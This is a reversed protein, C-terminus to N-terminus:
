SEFYIYYNGEHNPIEVRNINRLGKYWVDIQSFYSFNDYKLFQKQYSMFFDVNRLELLCRMIRQRIYIPMESLSWFAVTLIKKGKLGQMEIELQEVSSLFEINDLLISPDVNAVDYLYAKQLEVMPQIDYIYYKGIFGDNRITKYFSGYGGGIELIIDYSLCRKNAMKSLVMLHYANQVMTPSTKFDAEFKIPKGIEDERCVVEWRDEWDADNRLQKYWENTEFRNPLHITENVIDWRLIETCKKKISYSYMKMLVYKWYESIGTDRLIDNNCFLEKWRIPLENLGM